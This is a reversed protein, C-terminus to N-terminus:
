FRLKKADKSLTSAGSIKHVTMVPNPTKYILSTGPSTKVQGVPCNGQTETNIKSLCM